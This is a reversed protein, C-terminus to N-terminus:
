YEGMASQHVSWLQMAAISKGDVLTGDTVMTSLEHWSRSEV